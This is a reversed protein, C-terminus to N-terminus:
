QSGNKMDMPAPASLDLSETPINSAAVPQFASVMLFLVKGRSKGSLSTPADVSQAEALRTPFRVSWQPALKMTSIELTLINRLLPGRSRFEITLILSSYLSALFATQVDANQALSAM